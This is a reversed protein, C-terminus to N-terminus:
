LLNIKINKEGSLAFISLSESFLRNKQAYVVIYKDPKVSRVVAVNTYTRTFTYAIKSPLEVVVM